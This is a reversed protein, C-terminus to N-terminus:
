HIGFELVGSVLEQQGGTSIGCYDIPNVTQRSEIGM